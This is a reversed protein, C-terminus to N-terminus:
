YYEKEDYWSNATQYTYYRLRGGGHAAVRRGDRNREREYKYSFESMVATTKRMIHVNITQLHKFTYCFMLLYIIISYSVITNIFIALCISIKWGLETSFNYLLGGFQM